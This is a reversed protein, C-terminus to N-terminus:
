FLCYFCANQKLLLKVERSFTTRSPSPPSIHPILLFGLLLRCFGVQHYEPSMFYLIDLLTDNTFARLNPARPLTIDWISLGGASVSRGDEGVGQGQEQVRNRSGSEGDGSGQRGGEGDESGVAATQKRQRDFGSSTATAPENVEGGYLRGKFRTHWEVPLYEVRGIGSRRGRQEVGAHHKKGSDMHRRRKDTRGHLDGRRLVRLHKSSLVVQNEYPNGPLM